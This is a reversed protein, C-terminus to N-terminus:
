YVRNIYDVKYKESGYETYIHADLLMRELDNEADIGLQGVKKGIKIIKFFVVNKLQVDDGFKEKVADMVLNLVDETPTIWHSSRETEGDITQISTIYKKGPKTMLDPIHVKILYRLHNRIVQLLVFDGNTNKTRWASQISFKIASNFDLLFNPLHKQCFQLCDIVVQDDNNAPEYEEPITFHKEASIVSCLLFAVLMVKEPTPWFLKVKQIIIKEIDVKEM